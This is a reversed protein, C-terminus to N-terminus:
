WPHRLGEKREMRGSRIVDNWLLFLDLWDDKHSVSGVIREWDDPHVYFCDMGILRTIPLNELSRKVYINAVWGVAAASM